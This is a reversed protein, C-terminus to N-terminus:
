RGALYAVEEPSLARNYISFNDLSGVYLPDAYQSKGLYNQTTEGLSSPKNVAHTNKAIVEGDLYLSHTTNDANMVVAVPHWDRPMIDPADTQDEAGSGGTTIAFRMPGSGNRPTLFMNVTPGTGFDFVRQWVGGTNTFNVWMSITANDMESIASGIPLDVYDDVGDFTLALGAYGEVYNPDGTATGDFGNGSSDSLDNEFAYSAVLGETGPDIPLSETQIKFDDFAVYGVNESFTAHNLGIQLTDPLDPRNIVLPTQTGDYIGQYAPSTLPIFTVGDASIRPYFNDGDRELQIYPYQEAIAFTDAGTWSGATQGLEVRSGNTTSRAVFATWTPFYDMSVWNEVGGDSAPDRATIGASNHYLPEAATGAFDTVKVTVIFDGTVNVYLLPGPGPDWSSNSSEIYLAGERSISANLASITGNLMGDYLGLGETLYDHAVDFNDEFTTVLLYTNIEGNLTMGGDTYQTSRMLVDTGVSAPALLFTVIGDTDSNLFDDLAQSTGTSQRVKLAPSKFSLLKDTLDAMDLMVPYQISQFNVVGPATTWSLNPSINDMSEIVGYVDVTGSAPGGLNSFSMNSFAQDLDRLGSIDYSVLTVRRENTFNRIQLNYTKYSSQQPQVIGDTGIVVEVSSDISVPGAQAGAGEFDGELFTGRSSYSRTRITVDTGEANPVMLFTVIGNTDGNIFDDLAQSSDTSARVDRPPAVFTLLVDTLDAIDLVDAGIPTNIAPVNPDNLVGPATKWTATEDIIDVDDLVGYVLVTADGGANNGYNSLTVNSFVGGAAKLASIDFSILSVRRRDDINRAHWGSGNNNQDPGVQSDNGLVVDASAILSFPKAQVGSAISLLLVFFLLYIVKKIM